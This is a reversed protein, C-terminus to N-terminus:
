ARSRLTEILARYDAESGLATNLQGYDAVDYGHSRESSPQLFPSLHCDSIGLTALYPVIKQVDAFTLRPGLQLRYTATPIRTFAEPDRELRQFVEEPTM